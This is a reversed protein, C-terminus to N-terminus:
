YLEHAPRELYVTMKLATVAVILSGLSTQIPVRIRHSDSSGGHLVREARQFGPHSRGVEQGFRKIPHTGLHTQM